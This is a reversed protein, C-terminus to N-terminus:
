CRHNVDCHVALRWFVYVARRIRGKVVALAMFIYPFVVALIKGFIFEALVLQFLGLGAQV